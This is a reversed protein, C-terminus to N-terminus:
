KNFCPTNYILTFSVASPHGTSQGSGRWGSEVSLSLPRVTKNYRKGDYKISTKSEYELSYSKQPILIDSHIIGSFEESPHM